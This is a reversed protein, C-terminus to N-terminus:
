PGAPPRVGTPATPGFADRRDEPSARDAEVIKVTFEDGIKPQPVDWEITQHAVGDSGRVIFNLIGGHVELIAHLVGVDHGIGATLLYRGNRHIEFAKM